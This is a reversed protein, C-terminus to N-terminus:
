EHEGKPYIMKLTQRGIILDERRILKEDELEDLAKVLENHHTVQRQVVEFDCNIHKLEEQLVGREGRRQIFSLLREKVSITM